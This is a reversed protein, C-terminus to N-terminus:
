ISVHSSNLRTSKRDEVDLVALHRHAPQFRHRGVLHPEPGVLPLGTLALCALLEGGALSGYEVPGIAEEVRQALASRGAAEATRLDTSRRPPLCHRVLR